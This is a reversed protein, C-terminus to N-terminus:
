PIPCHVALSGARPVEKEFKDRFSRPFTDSWIDASEALELLDEELRWWLSGPCSASFHNESLFDCSIVHFLLWIESKRHQKIAPNPYM